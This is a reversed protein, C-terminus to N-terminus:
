RSTDRDFAIRTAALAPTPVHPAVIDMFYQVRASEIQKPPLTNIEHQQIVTAWPMPRHDVPQNPQDGRWIWRYPSNEAELGAIEREIRSIAAEADRRATTDLEHQLSNSDRYADALLQQTKQNDSYRLMDARHAAVREIAEADLDRLAFRLHEIDSRKAAIQEEPSPACGFLALVIVGACLLRIPNM